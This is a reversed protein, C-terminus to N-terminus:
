PAASRSAVVSTWPDSTSNSVVLGRGMRPPIVTSMYRGLSMRCSGPASVLNKQNTPLLGTTNKGKTVKATINVIQHYLPRSGSAPRETAGIYSGGGPNVGASAPVNISSETSGRSM